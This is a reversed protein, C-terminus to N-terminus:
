LPLHHVPRAPAQGLWGSCPRLVCVEGGVCPGIRLVKPELVWLRSTFPVGTAGVSTRGGGFRPCRETPAWSSSPPQVATSGAFSKFSRLLFFESPLEKLVPNKAGPTRRGFEISGLAPESRDLHGRRPARASPIGETNTVRHPTQRRYESM